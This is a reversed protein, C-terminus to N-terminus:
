RGKLEDLLEELRQYSENAGVEMGSQLHGDRAEKSNHRITATLLTKGNEETLVLTEISPHDRIFDVDYIFTQSIKEPRVIERYEGKFPHESGDEMRLVRRWAGGERFDMECQALEMGRMGWWRALHECKTFAEFVLARPADFTRTLQIETDSPLTVTLKNTTQM